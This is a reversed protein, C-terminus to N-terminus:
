IDSSLNPRHIIKFVLVGLLSNALAQLILQQYGFIKLFLMSGLFISIFVFPVTQTEFKKEYLFVMLVIFTLILSSYGLIRMMGLDLFLGLILALFFVWSKRFLVASLIVLGISFPITTIGSVIITFFILLIVALLM